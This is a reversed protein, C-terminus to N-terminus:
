LFNDAIEVQVRDLQEYIAEHIFNLQEIEHVTDPFPALLSLIVTFFFILSTQVDVSYLFPRYSRWSAVAQKKIETPM